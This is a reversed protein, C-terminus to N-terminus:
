ALLHLEWMCCCGEPHGLLPAAQAARSCSAGTSRVAPSSGGMQSAPAGATIGPITQGIDVYWWPQKSPATESWATSNDLAKNAGHLAVDSSGSQTATKGVLIDPGPSCTLHPSITPHSRALHGPAGPPMSPSALLTPLAALGVGATACSVHKAKGPAAPPPASSPASAPASASASASCRQDRERM